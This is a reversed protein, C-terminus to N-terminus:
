TFPKIYFVREPGATALMLLAIQVPRYMTNICILIGDPFWKFIVVTLKVVFLIGGFLFLLYM